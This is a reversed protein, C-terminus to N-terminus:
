TDTANMAGDWDYVVIGDTKRAGAKAYLARAAGNDSETAVWIGQCGRSRAIALLNQVLATGIGRNRMDESVGVEAIFFAPLKDPHLLITGSAMGVVRTGIIAIIMEHGPDTLFGALQVHDIQNDFVDAGDLLAADHPGLRHYAIREQM